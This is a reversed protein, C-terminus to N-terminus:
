FIIKYTISKHNLQKLGTLSKINTSIPQEAIFLTGYTRLIEINKGILVWIDDRQSKPNIPMTKEVLIKDRVPSHKTYLQIENM